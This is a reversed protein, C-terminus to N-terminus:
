PASNTCVPAAIAVESQSALAMRKGPQWLLWKGPNDTIFSMVNNEFLGHLQFLLRATLEDTVSLSPCNRRRGEFGGGWGLFGQAGWRRGSAGTRDGPNCPRRAESYFGLLESSWLQVWVQVGSFGQKQLRLVL